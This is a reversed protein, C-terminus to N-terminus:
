QLRHRYGTSTTQSSPIITFDFSLTANATAATQTRALDQVESIETTPIIVTPAGIDPALASVVGDTM